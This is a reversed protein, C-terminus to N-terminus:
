QNQLNENEKITDRCFEYCQKFIRKLVNSGENATDLAKM